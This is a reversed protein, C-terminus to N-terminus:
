LNDEASLAWKAVMSHSLNKEYVNLCMSCHSEPNRAWDKNACLSCQSEPNFTIYSDQNADYWIFERELEM